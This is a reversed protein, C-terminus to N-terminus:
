RPFVFVLGLALTQSAQIKAPTNKNITINKDYLGVGAVSVNMFRNVKATIMVDLRYNTYSLDDYPIFMLYKTKLNVNQFIDKEFSSVLQFALDNRFKDGIPVGFNDAKNPNGSAELLKMNDLVFTQRATGTGIRTSFYKSPKYEFGLSETLYGPSMFTSILRSQEDGNADRYYSYGNDFQSEFSVSGFFYWNKSLQIAAKNDWFIRDVTKKQLQNKNKVKGYNLIVESIYSYNEKSYEAKHNILGALALSNVGGGSWNDSFAAQNVNLGVSTKTKWYNVKANVVIPTLQVPKFLLTGMRSPLPSRKLKINLDKTNIPITDVEQAKLVTSGVSLFLLFVYFCKM